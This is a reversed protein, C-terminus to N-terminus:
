QLYMKISDPTIKVINGIIWAVVSHSISYSYQGISSTLHVWYWPVHIINHRMLYNMQLQLTEAHIRSVQLKLADTIKQHKSKELCLDNTCM